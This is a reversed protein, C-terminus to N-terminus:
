THVAGAELAGRRVLAQEVTNALRVRVRVEGM